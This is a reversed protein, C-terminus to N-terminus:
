LGYEGLNACWKGVAEYRKNAAAPIGIPRGRADIILGVAGTQVTITKSGSRGFGADFAGGPQIHVKVEQDPPLHIVELSGFPVHHDIKRDGVAAKVRVAQQGPRGEGVICVATGVTMLAGADLAQVVAVPNLASAAGLSPMLCHTDLKLTVVGTPQLGDLMMLAAQGPKPARALVAGSGVIVGFSPLLGPLGKLKAPWSASQVVAHMCQRALAHEMYLERLEHPVTAPSLSKNVIYDRLEDDTFAEPLWRAIRDLSTTFHGASHGAGLDSRVAVSLDGDAAAALTTTASGVDVALLGKSSDTLSMHRVLNGFATAGPAVGNTTWQALEGYGPMAALRAREYVRALQRRASKVNEEELVPRLNEAVAVECVGTFMDRVREHLAANGVFLIEPRAGERMQRAALAVLDALQLVAGQSGYDTGGSIIVLEPKANILDDIRKETKRRDGLGLRDVIVTHATMAVREATALSINPMLGVLAVRLPKGASASVAVADIGAGDARSPLILRDNDDILTRGTLAKLHEMAQHLGEGMYSFPPEVTSRAEGSAVFRFEGSVIDLLAARTTVSGIDAALISDTPATTM